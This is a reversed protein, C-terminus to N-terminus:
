KSELHFEPWAQDKDSLILEERIPWDINFAPDDWRIGRESKPSYPASVLYYVDSNDELTLYGHACGPPVFLMNRNDANLIEGHWQGYTESGSRIDVVVDFISGRVCRILKAEEDPAVQYHLGRLTGKYRSGALNSQVFTVDIGAQSMEDRCWGRLFFGRDDSFVSPEIRFAGAVATEQFEM